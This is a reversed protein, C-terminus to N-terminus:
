SKGIELPLTIRSRGRSKPFVAPVRRILTRLEPRPLPTGFANLLGDTLVRIESLTGDPDIELRLSLLGTHGTKSLEELIPIAFRDMPALIKRYTLAGELMPRPETFWGHIVLRADLLSNVGEVREVGHPFRPDFVVLRNFETPIREILDIEEHSAGSSADALSRLLAPKALLTEGGRFPRKRWPTLSFVFSLPGHPVDTHLRQHCGDVYASLWPHSIMQCGLNERGWGILQELFSRYPKASFFAEAPTRLLRYQDGRNWFDWCFRDPSARDPNGFRVEFEKRLTNADRSFNSSIEYSAPCPTRFRFSTRNKM